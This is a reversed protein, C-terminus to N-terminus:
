ARVGVYDDADFHIDFENGETLDKIHFTYDGLWGGKKYQKSLVRFKHGLDFEAADETNIYTGGVMLDKAKVTNEKGIDYGRYARFSDLDFPKNEEIARAVEDYSMSSKIVRYM